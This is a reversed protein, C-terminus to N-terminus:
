VTEENINIKLLAARHSNCDVRAPGEGVTNIEFVCAHFDQLYQRRGFIGTARHRLRDLGHSVALNRQHAMSGRNPSVGQQLTFARAHCKNGSGSKFIGDGNATLRARM